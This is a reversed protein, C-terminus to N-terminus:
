EGRLSIEICRKYLVERAYKDAYTMLCEQCTVYRIDRTSGKGLIKPEHCGIEEDFLHVFEM